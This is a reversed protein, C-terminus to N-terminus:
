HVAQEIAKVFHDPAVSTRCGFVLKPILRSQPQLGNLPISAVREWCVPSGAVRAIPRQREGFRRRESREPQVSVVRLYQQFLGNIPTGM